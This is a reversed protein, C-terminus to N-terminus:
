MGPMALGELVDIEGGPTSLHPHDALLASAAELSDAQVVSYGAVTGDSASAVDGRLRSGGELPVGLDVIADGSRQAWAMWADMAAKAEQPTANAMMERPSMPSHYLVLYRKM